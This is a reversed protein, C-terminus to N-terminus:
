QCSWGPLEVIPWAVPGMRRRGTLWWLRLRLLVPKTLMSSSWVSAARCGVRASVMRVYSRPLIRVFLADTKRECARMGNRATCRSSWPRINSLWLGIGDRLTDCPQRLRSRDLTSSQVVSRGPSMTGFGEGAVTARELSFVRSSVGGWASILCACKLIRCVQCPWLCM